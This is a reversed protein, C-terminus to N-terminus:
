LDVGLVRDAHRRIATVRADSRVDAGLRVAARKYAECLLMPNVQDEGRLWAVGRLDPTLNPEVRLAERPDLLEPREGAPLARVVAEVFAMESEDYAVFLLGRGTEYEIEIGGLDHLKKALDEFRHNSEVLFRRFHDPLPNPGVDDRDVVGHTANHIVGCGLGVAEGIPWLGGASASTARGPLHKDLLLVSASRRTLEYAVSCGFAGGGVVIVDPVRIM